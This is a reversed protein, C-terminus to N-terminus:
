SKEEFIEAYHEIMFTVIASTKNLNGLEEGPSAFTFLNPAMCTALNSAPMRNTEYNAAIKSLFGMLKKLLAKDMDNLTNIEDILANVDLEEHDMELLANQIKELLRPSMKKIFEKFASAVTHINEKAATALGNNTMEKVLTTAELKAGSLRLIGETDCYELIVNMMKSLFNDEVEVVAAASIMVTKKPVEPHKELGEPLGRWDLFRLSKVSTTAIKWVGGVIGVKLALDTCAQVDLTRNLGFHWTAWTTGAGIMGAVIVRTKPCNRIGPTDQLIRNALASTVGWFAATGMEFSHERFFKMPIEASSLDLQTVSKMFSGLAAKENTFTLGQWLKGLKASVGLGKPGFNSTIHLLNGLAVYAAPHIAGKAIAGIEQTASM